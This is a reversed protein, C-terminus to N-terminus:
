SIRLPRRRRIRIAGGATCSSPFLVICTSMGASERFATWCGSWTARRPKQRPPLAGISTETAPDASASVGSDAAFKVSHDWLFDFNRNIDVGICGGGSPRRNKRWQPDATQSFHRGDPNVCPYVIISLAQMVQRIDSAAFSKGGYVLGTGRDLAELLDAALSILADPPVWERAHVGGLILVSDQESNTAGVRVVHTQRGEHSLNPVTILETTAPYAAALNELASEIEDVNLYAM